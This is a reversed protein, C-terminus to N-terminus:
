HIIKCWVNAIALETSPV